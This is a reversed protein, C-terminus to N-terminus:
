PQPDVSAQILKEHAQLQKLEAEAHLIAYEINAIQGVRLDELDQKARVIRSRAEQKKMQINKLSMAKTPKVNTVNAPIIEFGGDRAM